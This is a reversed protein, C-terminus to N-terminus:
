GKSVVHRRAEDGRALGAEMLAKSVRYLLVTVGRLLGKLSFKYDGGLSLLVNILNIFVESDVTYNDDKATRIHVRSCTM